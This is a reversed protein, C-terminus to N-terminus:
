AVPRNRVWKSWSNDGYASIQKGEGLLEQCRPDQKIRNVVRNFQWTKSDPAFVEQYLLTFVTGQRM